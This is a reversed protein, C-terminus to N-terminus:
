AVRARDGTFAIALVATDDAQAGVEFAELARRIRGVADSADATGRLTATLRVDGFREDNGDADIVGDTYLVLVDGPALTLTEPKWVSDDFAGVMPGWNGIQVPDDDRILYPKPHGACIVTAQVAGDTEVLHLAAVTCLSTTPLESLARNLHTLAALPDGLLQAATRLTHRAQGTLAAAEAGRGAVDGVVVMWGTATRFADYFDGGVWNEEGAPRYLSALSFGPMAPLGAPLLSAQLTDAIHSRETYLRANEVATGARRGLEEALELDAESFTRHSEASVFSIAGIAHGGAVMPVVMAAHMGLKRIAELQELDLVLEQLLADTIENVVQSEGSRIVDAAGGPEDLRQPYRESLEQAFRVKAPDVHAVAVSRLMGREGPLTVGCWDALDGIALQAVRALTEEYDLSSALVQGAQALLRQAQEARKVETVDEIVNVALRVRGEADRVGTAKTVRWREEGTRRSVARVLLPEPDEGALVRRGPLDDFRLPSGDERFSDFANVIELPPTALLEEPSAYGLSRAAADNAYVLAGSHDQMTVAEALSGLAAAQRAALTEVESFLGANDLALAVRGSLVRAFALDEEDYDRGSLSTMALALTGIRRNRAKLPVTMGSRVGLSRLFDLDHDDLAAKRLRDDQYDRVLSEAGAGNTGGRAGRQRLGAAIESSRPGHAAVAFRELRDDRLLDIACVDAIAPVLIDSLNGLTEDVGLSRDSLESVGSLMQFRVRDRALRARSRAGGLAFISGVIVVGLRVVYDVNDFNHNWVPSLAASAVALVAVLLTQRPSSLWSVVFPGLVVTSAITEGSWFADVLTLGAIIALGLPVVWGPGAGLAYRERTKM